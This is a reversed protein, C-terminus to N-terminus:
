RLWGARFGVAVMGARDGTGLKGALNALHTKVTAPSVDLHAAIQANTLGHSVGRLITAERRTPLLIKPNTM